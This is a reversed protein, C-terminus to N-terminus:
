FDICGSLLSNLVSNGKEIGTFFGRLYNTIDKKSKEKLLPFENIVKYFENEKDSFEKLTKLFEEKTRCVGLYRRERVTKIGLDPYPVAYDANVMGAYDFDYAVAIGLDPRPSRPQSFLVVNHRIPLSWDTNGVMYNFIAMKDVIDPQMNKQTLKQVKIEVANLRKSLVDTPEILFGFENVPKSKKRTNIYTIRALRVRFSNETLVNYLKYVLFEKLINEENGLRCHTVLKIKNVDKFEDDTSNSKNFNLRIPPMDCYSLRMIGRAKIKINKNVSDTKSIHYTLVADFEMTDSRVRKFTTIDFRLTFKLVSDSEFLRLDNYRVDEKNYFIDITDIQSLAPLFSIFSLFLLICLLKKMIIQM